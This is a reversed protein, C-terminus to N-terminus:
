HPSHTPQYAILSSVSMQFVPLRLHNRPDAGSVVGILCVSCCFSCDIDLISDVSRDKCPHEMRQLHELAAIPFKRKPM